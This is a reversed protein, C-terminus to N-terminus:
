KNQPLSNLVSGSSFNITETGIKRTFSNIKWYKIYKRGLFIFTGVLISPDSVSVVGYRGVVDLSLFLSFANM